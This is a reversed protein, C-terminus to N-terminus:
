GRPYAVCHQDLASSSPSPRRNADGQGVRLRGGEGAELPPQAQAAAAAIAHEDPGGTPVVDVARAAGPPDRPPAVLVTLRSAGRAGTSPLGASRPEFERSVLRPPRRLGRVVITCRAPGRRAIPEPSAPTPHTFGIPRHLPRTWGHTLTEGQSPSHGPVTSM